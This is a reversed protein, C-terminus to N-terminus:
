SEGRRSHEKRSNIGIRFYTKGMLADPIEKVAMEMEGKGDHGLDRHMGLMIYFRPDKQQIFGCLKRERFAAARRFGLVSGEAEQEAGATGLRWVRASCVQSVSFCCLQPCGCPGAEESWM